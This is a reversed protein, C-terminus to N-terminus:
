EKREGYRIRPDLFVYSIDVLLNLLAVSGAIALACGQVMTFDRAFISDVLLKGMGPRAFITEVIVAGELLHAFQLGLVTIVPIMAARLAHKGIVRGEGLGRGRATRIYNQELVDLISSRTMRTTMAALGTGLTLAPLVMHEIGGAGFVPFWGIKLSFFLILLLALWFNPLSAGICALTMGVHDIISNKRTASFIGIPVAISLSILLSALALRLTPFFNRSVEDSVPRGNALSRGLNGQVVGILWQLYQVPIPSLLGERMRIADVQDQGIDSGYRSQAIMEALDGPALHVLGFMLATVGLMVWGM